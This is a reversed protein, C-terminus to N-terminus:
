TSWFDRLRCTPSKKSDNLTWGGKSKTFTGLACRLVRDSEETRSGFAKLQGMVWKRVIGPGSWWRQGVKRFLGCGGALAGQECLSGVIDRYWSSVLARCSCGSRWSRGWTSKYAWSCADWVCEVDCDCRLAFEIIGVWGIAVSGEEQLARCAKPDM